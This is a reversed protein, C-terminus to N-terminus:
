HQQTANKKKLCFVAYSIKVHSSNLRTSKRDSYFPNKTDLGTKTIQYILLFFLSIVISAGVFGFEEGITTFIFDSHSEPMYVEGNYFGKGTTMGSGISQLANVLQYGEDTR